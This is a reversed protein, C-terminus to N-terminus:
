SSLSLSFLLIIIIVIIIIHDKKDEQVIWRVSLWNSRKSYNHHMYNQLLTTMFNKISLPLGYLVLVCKYLLGLPHEPNSPRITSSLKTHHTTRLIMLLLRITQSYVWMSQFWFKNNCLEVLRSKHYDWTTSSPHLTATTNTPHPIHHHHPGIWSLSFMFKARLWM